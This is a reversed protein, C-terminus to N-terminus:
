FRNCMNNLIFFIKNSSLHFFFGGILEWLSFLVKFVIVNNLVKSSVIAQCLNQAEAQPRKM